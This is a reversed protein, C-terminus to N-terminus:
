RMGRSPLQSRAPPTHALMSSELPSKHSWLAGGHLRNTPRAISTADRRWQRHGVGRHRGLERAATSGDGLSVGHLGEDRGSSM